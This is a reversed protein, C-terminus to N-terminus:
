GMYGAMEKEAAQNFQAMYSPNSGKLAVGTLVGSSPEYLVGFNRRASYESNETSAFMQVTSVSLDARRLADINEQTKGNGKRISMMGAMM